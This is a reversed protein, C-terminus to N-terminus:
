EVCKKVGNEERIAPFGYICCNERYFCSHKGSAINTSIAMGCCFYTRGFYMPSTVFLDLTSTCNFPQTPIEAILNIQFM